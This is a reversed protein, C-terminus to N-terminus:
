EEYGSKKKLWDVEVQLQGVKQYLRYRNKQLTEKERNKGRSFLEPASEILQKKWQRIQNPHVGFEKALENLSRQGKIAEIAAKAKLAKTFNRRGM